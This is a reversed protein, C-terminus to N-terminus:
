RSNTTQNLLMNRVTVCISCWELDHSIMPTSGGITVGRSSCTKLTNSLSKFCKKRLESTSADNYFNDYMSQLSYLLDDKNQIENEKFRELLDIM